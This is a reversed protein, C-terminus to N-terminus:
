NLFFNNEKISLTSYIKKSVTEMVKQRRGLAEELWFPELPVQDAHASTILCGFKCIKALFCRQLNTQAMSVSFEVWIWCVKCFKTNLNEM